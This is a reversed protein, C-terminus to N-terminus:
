PLVLGSRGKVALIESATISGSANLDFRFNTADTVQGSRGKVQLIDTATVSRSANVDGVLFGISASANVGAGNVNTLSVTARSNDPVVPLTVVVTNGSPVAVASGLATGGGDVATLTGASIIASGFQFVLVHGGGIARPEVTVAGTIPQTTDISLDFDGAAGHTKRSALSGLVPAPAILFGRIEGGPFLTTHIDFYANGSELGAALANFASAATGGHATIFAANYSSALTMDFVHDYAGSTVAAPFGAFTPTMTAVGITGAGPVATCCHIHAATNAQVLGSFNVIVRMTALNFDFEITADGIAPSANPPSEAAGSLPATFTIVAAHSAPAGVLTAALALLALQMAHFLRKSLRSMM